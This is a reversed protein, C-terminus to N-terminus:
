EIKCKIETGDLLTVIIKQGEFVTMREIIKFYLDLTLHRLFRQFIGM